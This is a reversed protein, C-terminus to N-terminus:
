FHIVPGYDKLFRGFAWLAKYLTEVPKAGAAEMQFFTKMFSFYAQDDDPSLPQPPKPPIDVLVQHALYLNQDFLPFQHPRAVHLIFVRLILDDPVWNAAQEYFDLVDKETVRAKRRFANITELSQSLHHVLTLVKKELAKQLRWRILSELHRVELKQGLNLHQRLVEDGVSGEQYLPSWLRLFELPSCEKLILQYCTFFPMASVGEV